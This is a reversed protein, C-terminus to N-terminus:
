STIDHFAFNGVYLLQISLSPYVYSFSDNDIFVLVFYQRNILFCIFAHHHSFSLCMVIFQSFDDILVSYHLVVISCAPILFRM